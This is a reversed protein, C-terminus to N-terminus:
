YRPYAYQDDPHDNVQRQQASRLKTIGTVALAYTSIAVAPRKKSCSWIEPTRHAPITTIVSPATSTPSVGTRVVLRRGSCRRHLPNQNSNDTDAVRQAFHQDRCPHLALAFHLLQIRLRQPM